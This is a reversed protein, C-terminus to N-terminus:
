DSLPRRSGLNQDRIVVLVGLQSDLARSERAALRLLDAPYGIWSPRTQVM